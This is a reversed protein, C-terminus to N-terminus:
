TLFPSYIYICVYIHYIYNHYFTHMYVTNIYILIPSHIYSIHLFQLFYIYPINLFWFIYTHVYIYKIYPIYRCIYINHIYIYMNIYINTHIYNKLFCDNEVQGPLEFMQSYSYWARQQPVQYISICFKLIYISVIKSPPCKHKKCTLYFWLRPFVQRWFVWFAQILM